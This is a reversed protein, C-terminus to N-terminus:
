KAFNDNKIEEEISKKIKDPLLPMIRNYMIEMHFCAVVDNNYISGTENLADARCGGGCITKFKCKSCKPIECVKISLLKKRIPGNLIEELKQKKLNGCPIELTPCILVDGNPRVTVGNKIYSCTGCDIDFKYFGETIMQSKFLNQVEFAFKPKQKIYREIIDCVTGIIIETSIGSLIYEKARGSKFPFDIIWKDIGIEKLENYINGLYMYNLENVITNVVVHFKYKKILKLNSIIKKYDSGLRVKDALDYGDFTIRFEIKPKIKSLLQCIEENLLMANSFIAIRKVNKNKIYEILEFINKYTFPEGGSIAFDICGLEYAQDIIDKIQSFTLENKIQSKLQYKSNYCYKCRLNCNGTPEIHITDLKM